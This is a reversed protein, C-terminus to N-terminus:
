KWYSIIAFLWLSEQCLVLVEKGLIISAVYMRALFEKSLVHLM